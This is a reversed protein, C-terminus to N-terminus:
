GEIRDLIRRCFEDDYQAGNAIEDVSAFIDDPTQEKQDFASVQAVASEIQNRGELIKRECKERQEWFERESLM